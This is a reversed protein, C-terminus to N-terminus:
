MLVCPGIPPGLDSVSSSCDSNSGGGSRYGIRALAEEEAAMRAEDRARM